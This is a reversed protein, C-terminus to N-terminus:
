GSSVKGRKKMHMKRGAKDHESRNTKNKMRGGRKRQMRGGEDQLEQEEYWEGRQGRDIWEQKGWGQMGEDGVSLWGNGGAERSENNTNCEADGSSMSFNHESPALNNTADVPHFAFHTVTQSYSNHVIMRVKRHQLNTIDYLRLPRRIGSSQYSTAKHMRQRQAPHLDGHTYIRNVCWLPFASFITCLFWDPDASVKHINYPCVGRNRKHHMTNSSVRWKRRYCNVVFAVSAYYIGSIKHLSWQISHM